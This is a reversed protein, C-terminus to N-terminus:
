QTIRRGLPIDGAQGVGDLRRTGGASLAAFHLGISSRYIAADTRRTSTDPVVGLTWAEVAPPPKGRGDRPGGRDLSRGSPALLAPHDRSHGPASAPVTGVSVAPATGPRSLSWM